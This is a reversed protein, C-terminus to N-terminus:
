KDGGLQKTRLACKDIAEKIKDLYVYYARQLNGSREDDRLVDIFGLEALHYISLGIIHMDYNTEQSLTKDFCWFTTDGLVNTEEQLKMLIILVDALPNFGDCIRLIDHYDYNIDSMM